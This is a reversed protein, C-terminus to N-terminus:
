SHIDFITKGPIYKMKGMSYRINTQFLNQHQDINLIATNQNQSDTQLKSIQNKHEIIQEKFEAQFQQTKEAQDNFQTPYVHLHDNLTKHETLYTENQKDIQNSQKKIPTEDRDLQESLQTIRTKTFDELRKNNDLCQEGTLKIQQKLSQNDNQLEKYKILREEIQKKFQENQKALQNMQQKINKNQTILETLIYRLPTFVNTSSSMNLQENLLCAIYSSLDHRDITSCTKNIHEHINCRQLLTTQGCQLICESCLTQNCPFCQLDDLPRKCITCIVDRNISTEDIHEYNSKISHTM